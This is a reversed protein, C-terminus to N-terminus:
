ADTERWNKTYYSLHYKRLPVIKYYSEGLIQSMSFRVKFPRGCDCILITGRAYEGVPIENDYDAGLYDQRCRHDVKGGPEYAVRM